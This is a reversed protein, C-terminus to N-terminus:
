LQIATHISNENGILSHHGIIVKKVGKELAEFCNNLKPIMGSHIAGTKSLDDYKEGNLIEIVSADDEWNMLVGNKEFCYCLEVDYYPTLAISIEGAITDANTNLLQGNGDHTIACFVPLIDSILLTKLLQHNVSVVDGAFGFDVTGKERKESLIVNGDAGSFGISNTGFANLQAVIKKNLLGAYTMVVVDLMPADTIRRGEIMQPTLGLKEALRSAEKGGGHVLIKAGEIKSFALLVESLAKADDIVNGGIKVITIKPKSVM